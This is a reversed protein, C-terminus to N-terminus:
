LPLSGHLLTDDKPIGDRFDVPRRRLEALALRGTAFLQSLIQFSTVDVTEQPAPTVPKALAFRMDRSLSYGCFPAECFMPTAMAGTTNALKLMGLKNKIIKQDTTMKVSRTM